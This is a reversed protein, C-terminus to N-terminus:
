RCTPGSDHCSDGCTDQTCGDGDGNCSVAAALREPWYERPPAEGFHAFYHLRFREYSETVAARDESGDNPAHHIFRGVEGCFRHYDATHLLFAHWMGDVKPFMPFRSEPHMACIALYRRLEREHALAQEATVQDDAMHRARVRDLPFAMAKRVVELGAQSRDTQIFQEM